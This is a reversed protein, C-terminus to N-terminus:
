PRSQQGIPQRTHRMSPPVSPAHTTGSAARAHQRAAIFYPSPHPPTAPASRAPPAAAAPSSPRAPRGESPAASAPSPVLLLSWALLVALSLAWARRRGRADLPESGGRTGPGTTEDHRLGSSRTM